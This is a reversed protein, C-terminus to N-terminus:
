IMEMNKILGDEILYAHQVIEDSILNQDLDRVVHRVDAVIHGNEKIIINMPEFDPDIFEWQRMWYSRVEDHGCACGGETNYSWTVEKHMTSLAKDIDRKNFAYYSKKLLFTYKDM